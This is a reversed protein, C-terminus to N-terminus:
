GGAVRRRRRFLLLLPIVAAAGGGAPTSRCGCGDESDSAEGGDDSDADTDGTTPPATTATATGSATASASASGGTTDGGTTDGDGTSEAGTSSSTNYGTSSTTGDSGSTSTSTASSSSEGSESGSSSSGSSGSGGTTTSGGTSTSGGGGLTCSNTCEDDDVLNGDDCQEVGAQVFGDGCTADTCTTPCDDTDDDNGDDCEENSDEIGDGCCDVPLRIVANFDGPDLDVELYLAFEDGLIKGPDTDLGRIEDITFDGVEDGDLDIMDDVALVLEASNALDTVDCAFFALRQNASVDSSQWTFAGRGDDNIGIQRVSSQLTLGDVVDGEHIAITGNYAIFEDTAAAGSDDGSFIVDGNNNVAVHDFSQWNFASGPAPSGERAVLTNDLAIFADETSLEEARLVNVIHTGDDSVAFDNDVASSGLELQLGAVMDGTGFLLELNDVDGDVARYFGSANTSPGGDADVTGRFYVTGEADMFPRLANTFQAGVMFGPAPDGVVMLQGTDTWLGTTGDINVRIVFNGAESAGMAPDVNTLSEPMVDSALWIVADDFFVYPEGGTITGAAAVQGMAVSIPGYINAITNPAGTPIGGEYLVLSAPRTAASVEGAGLLLM